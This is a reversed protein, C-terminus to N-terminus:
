MCMCMCVRHRVMSSENWVLNMSMNFYKWWKFANTNWDITSHTYPFCNLIFQTTNIWSQNHQETCEVTCANLGRCFWLNHQQNKEEWWELYIRKDYSLIISITIFPIEIISVIVQNTFFWEYFKMNRERCEKWHYFDTNYLMMYQIMQLFEGRFM